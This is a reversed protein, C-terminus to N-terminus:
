APEFCNCAKGVGLAARKVDANFVLRVLEDSKCAVLCVRLAIEEVVLDVLMNARPGRVFDSEKAISPAVLLEVHEFYAYLLGGHAGDDKTELVDGGDVHAPLPECTTCGVFLDDLHAKCAAVLRIVHQKRVDDIVFAIEAVQKFEIPLAVIPCLEGILGQAGHAEIVGIALKCVSGQQEAISAFLKRRSLGGNLTRHERTEVFATVAHYGDVAELAVQYAADIEHGRENLLSHVMRKNFLCVRADVQIRVRCSREEFADDVGHRM